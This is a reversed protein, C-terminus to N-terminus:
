VLSFRFAPPATTFSATCTTGTRSCKSDCSACSASFDPLDCCRHQLVCGGELDGWTTPEVSVVLWFCVTVAGDLMIRWYIQLARNAECLGVSRPRALEHLDAPGTQLFLPCGALHWSAVDLPEVQTSYIGWCFTLTKLDLGIAFSYLQCLQCLMTPLQFSPPLWLLRRRLRSHSQPCYFRHFCALSTELM